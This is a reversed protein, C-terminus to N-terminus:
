GTAPLAAFIVSIVDRLGPVIQMARFLRFMRVVSLGRNPLGHISSVTDYISIATVVGDFLCAGNSLYGRFGMACLRVGMEIAFLLVFAWDAHKINEEYDAPMGEYPMSLTVANALIAALMVIKFAAHDVVTAAFSKLVPPVSPVCARYASDAIRWISGVLLSAMSGDAVSHSLLLHPELKLSEAYVSRLAFVTGDNGAGHRAGHAKHGHGSLDGHVVHTVGVSAGPLSVRVNHGYAGGADPARSEDPDRPQLQAISDRLESVIKTLDTKLRVNKAWSINYETIVIAVTVQFVAAHVLVLLGTPARRLFTCVLAYASAWVGFFRHFTFLISVLAKVGWAEWLQYMTEVWGEAVIALFSTLLAAGTNDFSTQGFNPNPGRICFSPTEAHDVILTPCADGYTTSCLAGVFQACSLACRSESLLVTDNAATTYSCTGSMVGAWLELGILAWLLMYTLGFALVALMNPLASVLTGVIVRLGPLDTCAKILRLVRLSSINGVTTTYSAWGIAVVLSDVWNWPDGFYSGHGFVGFAYIKLAMEATFVVTFSFEGQRVVYNGPLAFPTCAQSFVHAQAGGGTCGIIRVFRPTTKTLRTTLAFSRPM